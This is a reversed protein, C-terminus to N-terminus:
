DHSHENAKPNEDQFYLLLKLWRPVARNPQLSTKVTDYTLGTIRAVDYFNLGKDKLLAKLKKTDTM